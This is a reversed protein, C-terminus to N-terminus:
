SVDPPRAFRYNVNAGLLTLVCATFGAKATRSRRGHRVRAMQRNYRRSGAVAAAEEPMHVGVFRIAMMRFTVTM